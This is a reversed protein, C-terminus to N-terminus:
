EPFQVPPLQLIKRHLELANAIEPKGDAKARRQYLALLVALYTQEEISASTRRAGLHRESRWFQEIEFFTTTPV